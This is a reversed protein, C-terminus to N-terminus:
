LLAKVERYKRIKHPSPFIACFASFYAFDTMTNMKWFGSRGPFACLHKLQTKYDKNNNVYKFYINVLKM